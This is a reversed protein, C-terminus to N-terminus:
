ECHSPCSPRATGQPACRLERVSPASMCLFNDNDDEGSKVDSVSIRKISHITSTTCLWQLLEAQREPGRLEVVLSALAPRRGPVTRYPLNLRKPQPWEVYWLTLAALQSVASLMRCLATFSPFTCKRLILTHLMPFGSLITFTSPHTPTGNWDYYRFYLTELRPLRGTLSHIYSHCGKLSEQFKSFDIESTYSLHHQMFQSHLGMQLLRELSAGWYGFKLRRFLHRRSAPLWTSCVLTCALLTLRRVTDNRWLGVYAIILDTVEPPITRRHQMGSRLQRSICGHSIM